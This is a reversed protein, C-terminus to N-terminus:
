LEALAKKAEATIAPDSGLKIAQELAKRGKTLEGAKLASVGSTTSSSPTRPSSARPRNSSRCRWGPLIRRTPVGLGAHRRGRPREAPAGERNARAALAADLNGGDQAYRFALNNAAVAARPDIKLVREYRKSAEARNGEAEYLMGVLTQPGVADPRKAIISELNSRAEPLRKQGMYIQALLVYSGLYNPDADISKRLHQEAEATNGMASSVRAALTLVRPDNPSQALRQDVRAKAAAPKRDAFDLVVLGSLAEFDRADLAQAAQFERRALAVDKNKLAVTGALSHVVVASPYKAGVASIIAGARAADGNALLTRALDLQVVPNNPLAKAADQAFQLAPEREGKALNLEALQLQAATM